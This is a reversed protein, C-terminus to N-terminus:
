GNGAGFASLDRYAFDKGSANKKESKLTLYELCIEGSGADPLHGAQM